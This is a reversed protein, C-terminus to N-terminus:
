GSLVRAKRCHELVLSIGASLLRDGCERPAIIIVGRNVGALISVDLGEVGSEIGPFFVRGGEVGGIICLRCGQMVLHDRIMIVEPITYPPKLGRVVLARGGNPGLARLPVDLELVLREIAQLIRRGRPTIVRGKGTPEVLGEAELRSLLTRTAAEGLGLMRILLPRGVPGERLIRLARIVHGSHFAKHGGREPRSIREVIEALGCAEALYSM